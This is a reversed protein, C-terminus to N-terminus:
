FDDMTFLDLQDPNLLKGNKIPRYGGTSLKFDPQRHLFPEVSMAKSREDSLPEFHALDGEWLNLSRHSIPKVKTGPNLHQWRV